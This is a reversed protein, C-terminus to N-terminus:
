YLHVSALAWVFLGGAAVVAYVLCLRLGRGCRQWGTWGTQKASRWGVLAAMPGALTMALPIVIWGTTLYELTVLLGLALEALLAAVGFPVLAVTRATSVPRTAREQRQWEESWQM